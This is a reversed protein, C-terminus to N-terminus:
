GWEQRMGVVIGLFNKEYGQPHLQVGQVGKAADGDDDVAAAATLM